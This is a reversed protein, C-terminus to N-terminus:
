MKKVGADKSWLIGEGQCMFYFPSDKAELRMERDFMYPESGHRIFTWFHSPITLKPKVLNVLEVAELANMNGYEGNIPVILVDIDQLAAYKMRECQYSTDGSFYFVQGETRILMGVADPAHDGHDAFVAEIEFGGCIYRTGEDFRVLQDQAIGAKCCMDYATKPALLKTDINRQMLEPIIDMDLHDEDHHSIVLVDPNLEEPELVPMMLRKLGCIREVADSLYPDVALIENKSNKLLFGAQGLWFIGVQGEAPACIKVKDVFHM